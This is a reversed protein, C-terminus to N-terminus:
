IWHSLFGGCYSVIRTSLGVTASAVQIGKWDFPGLSFDLKRPSLQFGARAVLKRLGSHFMQLVQAETMAPYREGDFLVILKGINRIRVLRLREPVSAATGRRPLAIVMSPQKFVQVVQTLSKM